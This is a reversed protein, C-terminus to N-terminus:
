IKGTFFIYCLLSSYSLYFGIIVMVHFSYFTLPVNPILDEGAELYGYGFHAYNEKLTSEHNAADADRGEEKAVQYDALAQIAKQGRAKKEEFSLATTGDQLIYGGEVIDRIGPVFANIDRYGL